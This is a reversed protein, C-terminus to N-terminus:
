RYKLSKKLRTGIRRVFPIPIQSFMKVVSVFRETKVLTLIIKSIIKLSKPWTLNKLGGHKWNKLSEYYCEWGVSEIFQNIQELLFCNFAEGFLIKKVRGEWVVGVLRTSVKLGLIMAFYIGFCILVIMDHDVLQYKYNDILNAFNDFNKLSLPKRFSLM